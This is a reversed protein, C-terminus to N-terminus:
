KKSIKLEKKKGLLNKLSPYNMLLQIFHEVFKGYEYEITRKINEEDPLDAFRKKIIYSVCKKLQEGNLIINTLESQIDAGSTIGESLVKISNSDFPSLIYWRICYDLDSQMNRGKHFTHPLCPVLLHMYRSDPKFVRKQVSDYIMTQHESLDFANIYDYLRASDSMAIARVEDGSTQLHVYYSLNDGEKQISTINILRHPFCIIRDIQIPIASYKEIKDSLELFDASLPLEVKFLKNSEWLEDVKINEDALTINMSGLFGKYLNLFKRFTNEPTNQYFLFILSFLIGPKNQFRIGIDEIRKKEKAEQKKESDVNCFYDCWHRLIENRVALLEDEDIADERLRDRDINMYRSPDDDM